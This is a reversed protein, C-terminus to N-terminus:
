AYRPLHLARRERHARLGLKLKGKSSAPLIARRAGSGAGRRHALWTALTRSSWWRKASAEMVGMLDVAGGGFGGYDPSVAPRDPGDRRAAGLGAPELGRRRSSRRARRSATDKQLLARVSDALLQQEESYDFNMSGLTMKAIINRQIENSGAYITTKRM